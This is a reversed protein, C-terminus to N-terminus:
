QNTEPGPGRWCRWKEVVLASLNQALSLGSPLMREWVPARESELNTSPPPFDFPSTASPPRVSLSLRFPATTRSRPSPGGSM